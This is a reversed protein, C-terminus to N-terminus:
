FSEKVTAHQRIKPCTKWKKIDLASDVVILMLPFNIHHRPWFNGASLLPYGASYIINTPNYSHISEDEHKELLPM